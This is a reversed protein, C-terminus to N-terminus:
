PTPVGARAIELERRAQPVLASQPYTLILHELRGIAAALDGARRLARAWELDAEPAEPADPYREVIERWLGTSTTDGSRTAHLRASSALLLPAAEVTARAASEFTRAASATDGRALLLFARGAEVASDARTRALLALASVLEPSADSTPKLARRAARLDGEYLAIWGAAESTRSDDGASALLARAQAMDGARVWAWALLQVLRDHQDPALHREFRDLLKRADDARGLVSLARMHVPVVTAVAEEPALVRESEEALAVAARPDGGSLAASTARVALEGSFGERMAAVLADRAPLWAQMEEARRAFDLWAAVAASDPPLARLAVWGERPNGWAIELAALVRRALPEVPAGLLVRRVAPRTAAPTPLLSFIAAQDLYANDRLAERWSEASESWLGMAARLQALEYELGRGTGLEAQARRLVSDAAATRQNELLLKAYERYPLVERPWDSRWQEFAARTRAADGLSNLSRLLASRFAPVRPHAAIEQELVPVISDTMGLQAYVRELGLVIPVSGPNQELAQRYAAAAERYREGQELDMARMYADGTQAGASAAVVVTLLTAVLLSRSRSSRSSSPM